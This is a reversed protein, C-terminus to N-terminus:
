RFLPSLLVVKRKPKMLILNYLIVLVEFLAL